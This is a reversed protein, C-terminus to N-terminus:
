TEGGVSKKDSKARVAARSPEV